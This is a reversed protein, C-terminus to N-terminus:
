INYTIALSNGLNVNNSDGKYVEKWNTGGAITQVPSSESTDTNNGLQGYINRGWLWLTGDTKTAAFGHSMGSVQKWNNGGAVTQIPSSKSVTTLDGLEGHDNYGWTWLTGDNKIAARTHTCVMIHKWDAGGAVTQVPSSRDTTTGDGIWGEINDGWCWLTGDNKIASTYCVYKWDTGGAVTQIPSSKPDTTNDALKGYDNQGWIWLTGDTKIASTINDGAWVQKWDTGGCVTQVPSSRDTRTNDGLQGWTNDGWLWLTGDNKIAAVHIPGCAIERWNTGGAVTQVPSSKPTTSNDGLQGQNNKGWMWLTGDTKIGASYQTGSSAQKWDTGGAVTQVPSSRHTRTNDGLQGYTNNGWLWLQGGIYRDILNFDTNFIEKIDGEPSKFNSM